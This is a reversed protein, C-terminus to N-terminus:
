VAVSMNGIQAYDMDTAGNNWFPFFHCLTQKSSSHAAQYQFNINTRKRGCVRLMHERFCKM